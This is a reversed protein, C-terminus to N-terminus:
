KAIEIKSQFITESAAKIKVLYIGSPFNETNIQTRYEDKDLEKHILNRGLIDTVEISLNNYDGLDYDINFNDSAPNPYIFCECMKVRTFAPHEETRFDFGDEDPEMGLMVRASYVADGALLPEQLAIAYLVATDEPTLLSDPEAFHNLYIENVIKRNEDMNRESVILNNFYAASDFQKSRIKKQVMESYGIPTTKMSDVFQLYLYDDAAGTNLMTSDDLLESLAFQRNIYRMEDTFSNQERPDEQCQSEQRTSVHKM